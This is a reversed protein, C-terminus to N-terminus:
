HPPLTDHTQHILTKPSPVTQDMSAITAQYQAYDDLFPRKGVRWDALQQCDASVSLLRNGSKELLGGFTTLVRNDSPQSATLECFGAPAPLKIAVGGISVDAAWAGGALAAVALVVGGRLLIHMMETARWAMRIWCLV